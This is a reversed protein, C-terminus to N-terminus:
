GGIGQIFQAAAHQERLDLMEQKMRRIVMALWPDGLKEAKQIARYIDEETLEPRM